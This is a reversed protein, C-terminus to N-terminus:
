SVIFIKVYGFSGNVLNLKKLNLMLKLVICKDFAFM